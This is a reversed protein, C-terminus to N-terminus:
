KDEFVKYIILLRLKATEASIKSNLIQSYTWSKTYSTVGEITWRYLQPKTIM